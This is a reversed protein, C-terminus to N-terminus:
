LAGQCLKKFSSYFRVQNGEREKKLIIKLVKKDEALYQSDLTLLHLLMQPSKHPNDWM